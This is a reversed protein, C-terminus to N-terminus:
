VGQSDVSRVLHVSKALARVRGALRRGSEEDPVLGFVTPGAGSMLAGLAGGRIMAQKLAEIEPHRPLMVQEFVNGLLDAIAQTDGAALAAEMSSTAPRTVQGLEDFLRYVHGTSKPVDPTALLVWFPRRVALPTLREGLGEVRAPRGAIFFPVDSGLRSALEILEPETLGLGWLRNLGKLVAAGNTSGGALGGAVPIVKNIHIAAGGAFGTVQKLLRAARFALNSEPPGPIQPASTVTVEPARRLLVTDALNVPLMITRIYHYSDEPRKGLVDLTLNIKAYSPVVMEEV